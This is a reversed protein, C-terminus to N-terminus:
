FARTESIPDSRAEGPAPQGMTPAARDGGPAPAPRGSPVDETPQHPPPAVPRRFGDAPTIAAMAFAQKAPRRGPAERTVPSAPMAGM